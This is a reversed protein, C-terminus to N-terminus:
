EVEIEPEREPLEPCGVFSLSLALVHDFGSDSLSGQVEWETMDDGLPECFESWANKWEEHSEGNFSAHWRESRAESYEEMSKVWENTLESVESKLIRVDDLLHDLNRGQEDETNAFLETLEANITETLSELATFRENLEERKSALETYLHSPIKKM